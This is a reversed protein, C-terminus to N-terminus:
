CNLPPKLASFVVVAAGKDVPQGVSKGSGDTALPQRALVRVDTFSM